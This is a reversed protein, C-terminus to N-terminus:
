FSRTEMEILDYAEIAPEPNFLSAYFRLIDFTSPHFRERLM